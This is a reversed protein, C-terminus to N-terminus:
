GSTFYEYALQSIRYAGTGCTNDGDDLDLTFVGVGALANDLVYTLKQVLTDETEISIWSRGKFFYTTATVADSVAGYEGLQNCIEYRALIGARKTNPGAEGPGTGRAGVARQDESALTYTRAYTALVLNLKNKRAGAVLWSTVTSNVSVVNNPTSSYLPALNALTNVTSTTTFNYAHLNIM